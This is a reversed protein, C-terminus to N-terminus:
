GAVSFRHVSEVGLSDSQVLYVRDGLVFPAHRPNRPPAIMEAILRGQGDFVDYTYGSPTAREVWIRGRDDFTLTRLMAKAEPRPLSGPSCDRGSPLSDLWDRIEREELSSRGVDDACSIVM